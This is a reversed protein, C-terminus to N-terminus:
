PGPQTLYTHTWTTPKGLADPQRLDDLSVDREIGGQPDAVKLMFTTANRSCGFIVVYHGNLPANADALWRVGIPTGGAMLLRIAPETLDGLDLRGLNGTHRLAM